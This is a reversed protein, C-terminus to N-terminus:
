NQAFTEGLVGATALSVASDTPLKLEYPTNLLMTVEAPNDRMDPRARVSTVSGVEVGALRVQAGARLGLADPFYAKLELRHGFLRGGGFAFVLSIIGIVIIALLVLKRM